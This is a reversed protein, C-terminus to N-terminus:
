IVKNPNKFRIAKKKIGEGIEEAQSEYAWGSRMLKELYGKYIEKRESQRYLADYKINLWALDRLIEEEYEKRNRSIDTDEIRLIFLGSYKKAFIYTFLATRAGGIHLWGTPSPAFRTVIKEMKSRM